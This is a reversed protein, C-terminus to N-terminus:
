PCVLAHTHKLAEVVDIFPNVMFVGSNRFSEWGRITIGHGQALGDPHLERRTKSIIGPM